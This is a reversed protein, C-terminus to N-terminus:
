SDLWLKGSFFILQMLQFSFVIETTGESSPPEGQMAWPYPAYSHAHWTVRVAETATIHCDWLVKLTTVKGRVKDV